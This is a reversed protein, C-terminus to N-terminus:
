VVFVQIYRMTISRLDIVSFYIFITHIIEIVIFKLLVKM